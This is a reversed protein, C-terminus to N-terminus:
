KRFIVGEPARRGPIAKNFERTVSNSLDEGLYSYLQQQKNFSADRMLQMSRQPNTKRLEYAEIMEMESQSIIGYVFLVQEDTLDNQQAIRNLRNFRRDLSALVKLAAEDGLTEKLETRQIMLTQPNIQGVNATGFTTAMIAYTDRFNAETFNVGSQRLRDSLYSHRLNYEFAAQEGIISSVDNGHRRNIGVPQSSPNTILSNASPTELRKIQQELRQDNLTIQQASTLFDAHHSLPYFADKFVPNQPAKEGFQAILAARIERGAMLRNRIPATKSSFNDAQWYKNPVDGQQQSQKYKIEGYVLIATQLDSYRSGKFANLSHAKIPRSIDQTDGGSSDTVQPKDDLTQNVSLVLNAILVLNLAGSLAFLAKITM